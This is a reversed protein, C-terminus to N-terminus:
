SFFFVKEKKRIRWRQSEGKKKKRRKLVRKRRLFEGKEGKTKRKEVIESRWWKARGEKELRRSRNISEKPEKKKIKKNKKHDM